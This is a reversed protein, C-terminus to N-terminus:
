NPTSGPFHEIKKMCDKFESRRSGPYVGAGGSARRWPCIGAVHELVSLECGQNTPCPHPFSIPSTWSRV